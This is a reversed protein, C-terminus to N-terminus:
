IFPYSAAAFKESAAGITQASVSSAAGLLGAAGVAATVSSRRSVPPPPVFVNSQFSRLSIIVAAAIFIASKTFKAM